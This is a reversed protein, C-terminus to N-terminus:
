LECPTGFTELVCTSEFINCHVPIALLDVVFWLCIYSAMWYDWDADGM